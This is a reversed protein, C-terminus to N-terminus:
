RNDRSQKDSKNTGFTIKDLKVYALSLINYLFASMLNSM